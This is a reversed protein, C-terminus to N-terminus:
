KSMEYRSIDDKGLCFLKTWGDEDELCDGKRPAVVGLAFGDAAVDLGRGILGEDSWVLRCSKM